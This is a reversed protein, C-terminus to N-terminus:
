EFLDLNGFESVFLANENISKKIRYNKRRRENILKKNKLNYFKKEEKHERYHKKGKEQLLNKNKIYYQSQREKIDDKSKKIGTVIKNVCAFQQIWHAERLELEKKSGCPFIEILSIKADNNQLVEFSTYYRSKGKFWREYARRHGSFRNSLYKECTSGVYIKNAQISELKYIKGLLYNPM